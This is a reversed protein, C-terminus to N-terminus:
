TANEAPIPTIPMSSGTPIFRALLLSRTTAPDASKSAMEDVRKIIAEVEIFAQNTQQEENQSRKGFYTRRTMLGRAVANQDNVQQSMDISIEAPGQVNVKEWGRQAPLQGNAIAWAICRTRVWVAARTITRKRREFVKQVKDNVARQNPGTLKSDLVFAPPIGMGMVFCGALHDQFELFDATDIKIDPAVFKNGAKLVPIDAGFMEMKGTQKEQATATAAPAEDNGGVTWANEEVTGDETELFGVISSKTKAKRREFSKIEYQDRADNAGAIMPSVGRYDGANRPEYCLFMQPEPVMEDRTRIHYGVVRGFEDLQVGNATNTGKGPDRIVTSDIQQVQPFGAEDTVVLGFDADTDLAQSWVEQLADFHWRGTFDIRPLLDKWWLDALRNWDANETAASIHNPAAYARMLGTAYVALPHNDALYRAVGILKDRSSDAIFTAVQPSWSTAYPISARSGDNQLADWYSRRAPTTTKSPSPMYAVPRPQQGGGLTKPLPEAPNGLTINLGFFKM